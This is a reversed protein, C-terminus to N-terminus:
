PKQTQISVHGSLWDVGVMWIQGGGSITIRGGSSGGDPDFRIRGLQESALLDENTLLSLQLDNPLNEPPRQGLRYWRNVLDIAFFVPRNGSVAQSRAERLAGSISQAAARAHVAASVKFGNSLILTTMLGLIAVVVLMEVLTFGADGRPDPSSIM